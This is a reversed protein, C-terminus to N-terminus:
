IAVPASIAAHSKYDILKTKTYNWDYINDGFDETVISPLIKPTRLVQIEAQEVHNRYLHVDTLNGTLYGEKFGCVKAFLHLLLGYSALNYPIGLLFDCSRQTWTLDLFDGRTTVQFLMHCPPLAMEDLEGVNWASCVMRRDQPNTKLTNVINNIQNIGNFSNWQYGYIKGLDDEKKMKLKTDEDHGYPVKKPNAWENWINCGRDKYWSKSTIGHIFGDLEVMITKLSMKKTTLLPFGDQMNHQLQVPPIKSASVGTRNDFVPANILQKLITLYSYEINM